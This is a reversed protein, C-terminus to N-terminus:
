LNVTTVWGRHCAWAYVAWASLCVVAFAAVTALIGLWVGILLTAFTM